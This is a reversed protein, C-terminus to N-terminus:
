ETKKVEVHVTTNTVARMILKGLWKALPIAAQGVAAGSAVDDGAQPLDPDDDKIPVQSACSALVLAAIVMAKRM